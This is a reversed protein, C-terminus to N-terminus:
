APAFGGKELKGLPDRLLSFYGQAGLHVFREIPLQGKGFPLDDGRGAGGVVPCVAAMAILVGDQLRSPQVNGEEGHPRVTGDQKVLRLPLHRGGGMHLKVVALLDDGGPEGCQHGGTLQDDKHGPGFHSFRRPLRDTARHDARWCAAIVHPLWRGEPHPLRM